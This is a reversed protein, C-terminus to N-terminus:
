FFRVRELKRVGDEVVIKHTTHRGEEQGEIAIQGRAALSEIFARAEKEDGDQVEVDGIATNKLLM